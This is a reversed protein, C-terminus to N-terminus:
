HMSSSGGPGCAPRSSCRPGAGLAHLGVFRHARLEFVAALRVHDARQDLFGLRELVHPGRFLQVLLEGLLDEGVPADAEQVTPHLRFLLPSTMAANRARSISTSTAVTTTSTPTSTGFALAM